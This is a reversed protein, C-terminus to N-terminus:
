QENEVEPATESDYLGENIKDVTLVNVKSGKYLMKEYYLSFRDPNNKLLGYFNLSLENPTKSTLLEKLLSTDKLYLKNKILDYNFDSDRESYFVKEIGNIIIKKNNPRIILMPSNKEFSWKIFCYDRWGKESQFELLNSTKQEEVVDSEEDSEDRIDVVGDEEPVSYDPLFRFYKLIDIKFLFILVTAVVLVVLIVIILKNISFGQGRCNKRKNVRECFIM